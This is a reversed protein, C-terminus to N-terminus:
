GGCHAGWCTCAQVGASAPLCFPPDAHVNGSFLRVLCGIAAVQGRCGGGGRVVDIAAMGSTFAFARDAGELSAM